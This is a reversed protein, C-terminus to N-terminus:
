NKRVLNKKIESTFTTKGSGQPGSVLCFLNKKKMQRLTM